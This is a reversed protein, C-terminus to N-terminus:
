FKYGFSMGMFPLINGEIVLPTLCFRYTFGNKYPVHRYGINFTGALSNSKINFGFREYNEVSNGTTTSGKLKLFFYTAGAGLEFFGKKKGFLYNVGFPIATFKLSGSDAGTTSTGEVNLREWGVRFGWGDRRNRETRMDFNFSYLGANGLIELFAVKLYAKKTTIAKEKKTSQKGQYIKTIKWVNNLLVTITDKEKLRDIKLYLTPVQEIIYGEYFSSDKLYVREVFQQSQAKYGITFLTLLIIIQKM